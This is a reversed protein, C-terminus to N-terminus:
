PIFYDFWDDINGDASPASPTTQPTNNSNSLEKPREDLTVSLVQEKGSRYVTVTVTEGAKLKNLARTLENLSKVEYGGINIIIDQAKIGAKQACSGNTVDRVLAGSPLGYMQSANPDVDSASIGLYGGTIYGLNRLDELMGVVDDMPIAFGIGEITAGSNTTGSYKASTIGIVEGRMNFLPGGSNGPNIAADTQLMNIQTGDTAVVRDKASIYGVTLTSALEGLPNGIAVVQEGVVLNTSVGVTVPKLGQADMKILAIDNAENGGIYQATYKTGDCTLVELGSQGEVVHFNTVVYGDESLIFGSGSSGTEIYQGYSNTIGTCNIAVVSNVCQAYVQAPTMASNTVSAQTEPAPTESNPASAEPAASTDNNPTSIAPTQNASNKFEEKALNLKEDYSKKLLDNQEQWYTNMTSLMSSCILVSAAVAVGASILISLWTKKGGSAKRPEPIVEGPFVIEPEDWPKPGGAPSAKPEEVPPEVSTYPPTVPNNVVNDWGFEEKRGVGAGRYIQEQSQTYPMFDPACMEEPPRFGNEAQDPKPNESEPVPTNNFEDYSM